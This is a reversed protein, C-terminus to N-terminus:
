RGGLRMTKPKQPDVDAVLFPKVTVVPPNVTLDATNSAQLNFDLTLHAPIGPAIFLTRLDDFKVEVDLIALPNGNADRINAAPVAAANGNLDEVQVDAASFNLRMRASTYTGSPITAATFFETMEVYDAFNVRTKLPLTEVVAGNQKALTLSEVDVTYSLFDGAADTMSVIAQGNGTNATGSDGGSSSCAAL